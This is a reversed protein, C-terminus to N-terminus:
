SASIISSNLEIGSTGSGYGVAVVIGAGSKREANFEVLVDVLGCLILSFRSERPSEPNAVVLVDGQRRAMNVVRGISFPDLLHEFGFVRPLVAKRTGLSARWFEDSNVCVPDGLTEDRNARSSGGSPRLSARRRACLKMAGCSLPVGPAVSMGAHGFYVLFDFYFLFYLSSAVASAAVVVIVASGM